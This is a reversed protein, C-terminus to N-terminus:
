RASSSAHVSEKAFPIGLPEPVPHTILTDMIRRLLYTNRVPRILVSQIGADHAAQRSLEAASSLLLIVTSATPEQSRLVEALEIGDMGEMQHEILALAYVEDPSGSWGHHDLAEEASSAQDVIFGWTHLTHALVSRNVANGDVVLARLGVLAGLAREVPGQVGAALPLTVRFTTGVGEESELSLTGGHLRVLDSVIALGLGTGGFKRTTSEDLQSFPEFLRAQDGAPIGIGTDAVEFTVEDASGDGPVARVTVSGEATFKVANATLNLLIQRLRVPDGRRVTMLRPDCYAVLDIGKRRASDGTIMAVEDLLDELNLEIDELDVRLAEIKSFDLVDDILGLLGEGSTAVGIALERQEADLQTDLLLGTLGIVANMPTRIEHSVNALFSSKLLSARVAEDRALALDASLGHSEFIVTLHLVLSLTLVGITIWTLETAVPQGTVQLITTAIVILVPLVPASLLIARVRTPVTDLHPTGKPDPLGARTAALVLILFGAAMGAELYGPGITGDPSSLAGATSSVALSGVGALVLGRRPISWSVRTTAFAVAALLLVVGSMYSLLLVRDIAPRGAAAHFADPFLLTWSAFLISSAIMLGEAVARVQAVRRVPWDLQLLSGVSLCVLSSVAAVAGFSVPSPGPAPVAEWATRATHGACWFLSGLGLACWAVRSRGSATWAMGACVGAALAAVMTLLRPAQDARGLAFAIAAASVAATIAPAARRDPVLERWASRDM